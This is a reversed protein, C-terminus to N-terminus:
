PAALGLLAPLESMHAFTQRVLPPRLRGDDSAVFGLCPMGAAVAARAGVVSDEIVICDRPVVGFRRAGELYVDPAPKPARLDQSSLVRDRLRDWMGLQSLMIEMKRVRGNSCIAYPLGDRDLRDFVAEVGAIARVGQALAANLRDYFTELWNGPLAVGQGRVAEAVAAISGLRCLETVQRASLRAGHGALDAQLCELTTPWSDVVVGDCDFLVLQPRRAETMATGKTRRRAPPISPGQGM